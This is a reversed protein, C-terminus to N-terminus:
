LELQCYEVGHIDGTAQYELARCDHCLYKFPCTKCENLSDRTLKWFSKLRKKRLARKLSEEKADAVIYNRLLPCPLFYGDATLAVTGALCDHYTENSLNLTRRLEILNFDVKRLSGPYLVDVYVEGQFTTRLNRIEEYQSATALILAGYLWDIREIEEFREPSYEFEVIFRVGGIPRVKYIDELRLVAYVAPIELELAYSAMAMLYEVNDYNTLWLERGRLHSFEFLLERLREVSMPERHLVFRNNGICGISRPIGTAESFRGKGAGLQVILRELRGYHERNSWPPKSVSVIHPHSTGEVVGGAGYVVEEM